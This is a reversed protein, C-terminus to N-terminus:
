LMEAQTAAVRLTIGGSAGAGADSAGTTWRAIEEGGSGEVQTTTM